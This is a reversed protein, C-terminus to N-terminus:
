GRDDRSRARALAEPIEVRVTHPSRAPGALHTRLEGTRSEVPTAVAIADVTEAGVRDLTGALKEVRGM